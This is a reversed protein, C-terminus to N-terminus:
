APQEGEAPQSADNQAAPRLSEMVAALAQGFEIEDRPEGGLPDLYESVHVPALSTRDPDAPYRAGLLCAEMAEFVLREQEPSPADEARWTGKVGNRQLEGGREGGWLRGSIEGLALSARMEPSPQHSVRPNLADTDIDVVIRMAGREAQVYRELAARMDDTQQRFQPLVDEWSGAVFPPSTLTGRARSRRGAARELRESTVEHLAAALREPNIALVTLARREADNM